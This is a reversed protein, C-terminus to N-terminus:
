SVKRGKRYKRQTLMEAFAEMRIRLQEVDQYQYDTELRFVPINYQSLMTEFRELEFDYEIQGKLVHYIVGEIPEQTVLWSVYDYLADNRVFASSADYTLWTAAINRILRDRTGRLAKEPYSIFNKMSVYDVTESVTLGAESLLFPIKYNPFLVPSGLLMVSPRRSPKHKETRIRYEIEDILCKTHYTWEEPFPFMYYTNQIFARAADTIIDTHGQTIRLFHYLTIRAESVTKMAATLTHRTMRKKTKACVAECMAKLQVAYKEATYKDKRNPPVDILCVKKGSSKLDYAIKKMSDNVLPLIFLSDSFDTSGPRHIYGAISRSVPDTDRPVIDDSWAAAGLSGGIIWYPIAGSAIVLEEPIATSLLVVPPKTNETEYAWDYARSFFWKMESLRNNDNSLRDLSECYEKDFSDTKAALIADNRM